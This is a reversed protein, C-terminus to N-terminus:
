KVSRTIIADYIAGHSDRFTPCSSASNHAFSYKRVWGGWFRYSAASAVIKDTKRDRVYSYTRSLRFPKNLLKKTEIMSIEYRSSIEESKEYAVCKDDPVIGKERPISRGGVCEKSNKDALYFKYVGSYKKVKRPKDLSEGDFMLFPTTSNKTKTDSYMMVSSPLEKDEIIPAAYVKAPNCADVPVHYAFGCKVKVEYYSFEWRTLAELCGLGCGNDYDAAFYGKTKIPNEYEYGGDVVCLAKLIFQGILEDGFIIIIPIFIMTLTASSKRGRKESIAITIIIAIIWIPFLLILIFEM